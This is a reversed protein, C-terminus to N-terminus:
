GGDGFMVDAVGLFHEADRELHDESADKPPPAFADVAVGELTHDASADFATVGVGCPGGGYGICAVTLVIHADPNSADVPHGADAPHGADVPHGADSIAADPVFTTAVTCGIACAVNFTIDSDPAAASGDKAPSAADGYAITAVYIGPTGENGGCGTACVPIVGAFTASFIVKPVFHTKPPRGPTITTPSQRRRPTKV